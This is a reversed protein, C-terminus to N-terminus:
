EMATPFGTFWTEMLHGAPILIQTAAEQLTPSNKQLLMSLAWRAQGNDKIIGVEGTWQRPKSYDAAIWRSDPSWSYFIDGDSYSYNTIAPLIVESVKSNLDIVKLTTRDELYAVKEGDPSYVPQFEM